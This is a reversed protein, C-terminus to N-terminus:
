MKKVGTPEGPDYVAGAVKLSRLSLILSTGAGRLVPAALFLNYNKLEDTPAAGHSKKGPNGTLVRVREGPGLVFGPDMTGLSTKKGGKTVALSCNKTSFAKDGDNQVVFWETNLESPTPAAHIEVIKIAM